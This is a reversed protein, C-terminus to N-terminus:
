FQSKERDQCVGREEQKGWAFLFLGRLAPPQSSAKADPVFPKLRPQQPLTDGLAGPSVGRDGGATQAQALEKRQTETKDNRFPTCSNCDQPTPAAQRVRASGPGWASHTMLGRLQDGAKKRTRQHGRGARCDMLIAHACVPGGKVRPCGPTPHPAPGRSSGRDPVGHGASPWVCLVVRLWLFSRASIPNRAPGSFGPSFRGLLVKPHALLCLCALALLM